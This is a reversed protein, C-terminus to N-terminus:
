RGSVLNPLDRGLKLVSSFVVIFELRGLFMGAIQTWLVLTPADPTTVGISLGVTGQASAFEFLAEPLPTGHATLIAAGAAFTLFYLFVFSGTQRLRADSVYDQQGSHWAYNEVVASSPLLSRRVEWYISKALLFVRYQKMGGATSGTGGGMIMFVILVFIGFSNWNSYSVTSFGTTTLCSVTEFIAVRVSKSMTPYLQRTVLLLLLMAVMPVLLALMRVESDRGAARVRGRWLMYATLFNLNGLLMLPLSVAEVAVSDWYGISEAKTSFGGTSVAAFAHNVADFFSMGALWYAVMGVTLYSVYILLVLKASERVHPVLQESRGEASPLGAGAHGTLAAVMIIAFGAGGVVQMTSRWLLTLHQATTVDVVSLGTTTWGSVSEFMAQTFSLNELAMLPWAGALCAAAWSLVVILGGDQLTLVAEKPRWRFYLWTGGGIAAAAPIIFHVALRAEAPWAALVLLPFLMTAGILTLTLGWYAMIARYQLKLRVNRPARKSKTM